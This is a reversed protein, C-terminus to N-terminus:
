LREQKSSGNQSKKKKNHDELGSVRIGERSKRPLQIDVAIFTM